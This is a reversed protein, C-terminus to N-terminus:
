DINNSDFYNEIGKEDKFLTKYVAKCKQIIYWDYKTDCRFTNKGDKVNHIELYIMQNERTLLNWLGNSKSKENPPKRWMPPHIMLMFGNISLLDLSKKVFDQWITNGNAKGVKSTDKNYPPNGLIVSFKSIKSLIPQFDLTLFDGEFINSDYNYIKKLVEINKPQIENMYLMNEIIWKIREEKKPIEEKLGEMLRYYCRLIFPSLGAAPEFFTYHKNKWIEKPLKNLMEDILSLPTYVEGYEKVNKSSSNLLKDYDELSIFENITLNDLTTIIDEM